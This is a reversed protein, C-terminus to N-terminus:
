GLALSTAGTETTLHLTLTYPPSPNDQKVAIADGAILNIGLQEAAVATARTGAGHGLVQLRMSSATDIYTQMRAAANGDVRELDLAVGAIAPCKLGSLSQSREPGEVFVGRGFGQLETALEAVRESRVRPPIGYIDFVIYSTHSHPIRRCLEKYQERLRKTNLTTFNVPVVFFAKTREALLAHLGEVTHSLLMADLDALTAAAENEGSLTEVTSLATQSSADDLQSRYMMVQGRRANWVPRYIVTADSLLRRRARDTIAETEAQVGDLAAAAAAHADDGDPAARATTARAAVRVPETEPVDRVLRGAIDDAIARVRRRAAAEDLEAFCILLTETDRYEVGDNHGLHQPLVEQMVARARSQVDHWAEGLQAEIDALGLLEVAGVAVADAGPAPESPAPPTKRQAATNATPNKSDPASAATGPESGDTGLDMLARGTRRLMRRLM